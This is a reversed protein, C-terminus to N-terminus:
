RATPAGGAGLELKLPQVAHPAQQVGLGGTLDARERRDAHVRRHALVLIQQRIEHPPQQLVAGVRREHIPEHVLLHRHGVDHAVRDRIQLAQLTERVGSQGIRLRQVRIAAIREAHIETVRQRELSQAAPKRRPARGVMRRGREAAAPLQLPLHVPHRIRRIATIAHAPDAIRRRRVDDLREVDASRSLPRPVVEATDRASRAEVIRRIPEFARAGIEVIQQHAFGAFGQRVRDRFNALRHIKAAIVGNPGPRLEAAAHAQVAGGALEVLQRQVASADEGADARPIKRQRDEGPLDRRRQRGSIRHDRFRGLGRWQDGRAKYPQQELGAHRAFDHLQDRRRAPQEPLDREGM